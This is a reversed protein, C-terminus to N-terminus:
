INPDTPDWNQWSPIKITSPKGLPGPDVSDYINVTTGLGCNDYIWKADRVCLRICGHSAPSGLKNYDSAKLNYSTMNYGAVSHFYIGRVVQTCYQGYSPGMLTHWRYKNLTHYTGKPTPTSPLGVSCAFRKVPIIYGNKGDQAYVTVTCMTRNVRIYYNSQKPLIGDLDLQKVGNKYYFKYGNEYYWGNKVNSVVVQVKQSKVIGNMNVDIVIVYTGIEKPTWTFKSNTSFGQLVGWDTGGSKLWVFKYQASAGSPGTLNPYITVSQGKTIQTKSAGASLYEYGKGQASVADFVVGRQDMIDIYINYTTAKDIPITITNNTSFGQVVEWDKWGDGKSCVFKYQLGEVEGSTVAKVTMTDGVFYSGSGSLEIKDLKWPAEAVTYEISRTVVRGDIDKIDCYITYIGAEKPYWDATSSSSYNAIVGWGQSWDEGTGGKKWVFKYELSKIEGNAMGTVPIHTYVQETKGQNVDVGEHTWLETSLWYTTSQTVIEGDRDMIDVILEYKGSEDPTNWIIYPNESFSRLVGWEEWDNKQWVFKYKLGKTNGGTKVEVDVPEGKKQAADPTLVIGEYNWNVKVISFPISKTTYEGNDDIDVIIEYNGIEDPNWIVDSKSSFPQLVGWEKWNDRQWVFKYKLHSNEGETNVQIHIPDGYKEQPSKKDTEMGIYRWAHKKVEYKIKQTQCQGDRDIVDVIVEYEGLAEPTWIVTNNGSFAQLVGWEKWGDKQWVFKYQLGETNGETKALIEVPKGLQQVEEPSTEIGVCSWNVKVISFPISETIYKGNDDIDVIIEYDGIESPQWITETEESFAQLVGWEEWNNKQWVFKYKLHSNDGSTNVHINIPGSYKEQPSEKDTEIGLYQWIHEKIEYNMKYSQCKGTEDRIDVILEYEGESDPIWTVTNKNSFPQLVGWEQWNDRQWVFKYELCSSDGEIEATVEIKKGCPQPSENNAKLKIFKWTTSVSRPETSDDKGLSNVTDASYSSDEIYQNISDTQGNTNEQDIKDTYEPENTGDKEEIENNEQGNEETGEGSDTIDETQDESTINSIDDASSTMDENSIGVQSSSFDVEEALVTTSQMCLTLALIVAVYRKLKM